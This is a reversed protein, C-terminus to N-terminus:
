GKLEFEGVRCQRITNRLSRAIQDRDIRKKTARVPPHDRGCFRPLKAKPKRADVRQVDAWVTVGECRLAVGLRTWGELTRWLEIELRAGNGLEVTGRCTRPNWRLNEM